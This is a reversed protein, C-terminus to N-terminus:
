AEREVGSPRFGDPRAQPRAGCSCAGLTPREAFILANWHRRQRLDDLYEVGSITLPAMGPPTSVLMGPRVVGDLINGVVFAGRASLEAHDTIEFRAGNAEPCM